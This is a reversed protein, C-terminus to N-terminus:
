TVLINTRTTGLVEGTVTYLALLAVRETQPIAAQAQNALVFLLPIFITQLLQWSM